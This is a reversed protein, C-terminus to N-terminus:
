SGTRARVAIHPSLQRPVQLAHSIPSPHSRAAETRCEGSELLRYPNPCLAAMAHWGLRCTTDCACESDFVACASTRGNKKGEIEGPLPPPFHVELRKSTRECPDRKSDPGRVRRGRMFSVSSVSLSDSIPDRYEQSERSTRRVPCRQCPNSKRPTKRHANSRVRRQCTAFHSYSM